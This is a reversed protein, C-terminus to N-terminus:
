VWDTTTIIRSQVYSTFGNDAYNRNGAIMEAAEQDMTGSMTYLSPNDNMYTIVRYEVAVPRRADNDAPNMEHAM